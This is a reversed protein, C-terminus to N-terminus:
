ILSMETVHLLRRWVKGQHAVSSDADGKRKGVQHAKVAAVLEDRYRMM